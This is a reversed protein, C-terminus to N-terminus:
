IRGLIIATHILRTRDDSRTLRQSGGAEHRSITANRRRFAYNRSLVADLTLDFAPRRHKITGMAIQPGIPIFHFLDEMKIPGTPVHTGYRFGRIAGIQAGTMAKFADTLFDHSSGEIVGPMTEHAFNSRHLPVATYGVVSDIPRKLKSGNFPSVHQTFYPGAVFTSRWSRM